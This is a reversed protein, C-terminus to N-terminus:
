SSSRSGRTRKVMRDFEEDSLAAIHLDMQLSPEIKPEEEPFAPANRPRWSDPYRVPQEDTM